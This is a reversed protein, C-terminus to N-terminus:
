GFALRRLAQPTIFHRQSKYASHFLSAIDPPRNKFTSRAALERLREPILEGLPVPNVHGLNIGPIAGEYHPHHIATGPVTPTAEGAVYVAAVPSGTPLGARGHINMRAIVDDRRPLPIVAARGHGYPLNPLLSTVVAKRTEFSNRRMLDLFAPISGVRGLGHDLLISNVWNLAAAHSFGGGKATRRIGALLEQAAVAPGHSSLVLDDSGRLPLLLPMTGTKFHEKLSNRLAGAPSGMEAAWGVHGWREPDLGYSPGGHMEYDHAGDPVPIKGAQHDAWEKDTMGAGTEPNVYRGRKALDAISAIIPVGPLGQKKAAHIFQEADEMGFLNRDPGRKLHSYPGGQYDGAPLASVDAHMPLPLGKEPPPSGFPSKPAAKPTAPARAAFEKKPPAGSVASLVDAVGGAKTMAALATTPAVTNAAVHVVHGSFKGKARRKDFAVVHFPIAHRESWRRKAALARPNMQVYHRSTTFLSKVEFAHAPAGLIKKLVALEADTTNPDALREVAAARVFLAQKVHAKDTIPNGLPDHLHIVDYPESDPGHHGGIASALEKESNISAIVRRRRAVDRYPAAARTAKNAGRAARTASWDVIEPGATKRTAPAPSPGSRDLTRDRLNLPAAFTQTDAASGTPIHAAKQKVPANHDIQDASVPALHKDISDLLPRAVDEPLGRLIRRADHPHFVGDFGHYASTRGFPNWHLRVRPRFVMGGTVAASAPNHDPEYVFAPAAQYYNGETDTAEGPTHDPLYVMNTQPVAAGGPARAAAILEHRPDDADQLRDHLAAVTHATAGVVEDRGPLVAGGGKARADNYDDRLADHAARMQKLFPAIEAMPLSRNPRPSGWSKLTDEPHPMTDAVTPEAFERAAGSRLKELLEDCAGCEAGLNARLADSVAEAHEDSLADLGDLKATLDDSVANGTQQKPAGSPQQKEAKEPAVGNGNQKEAFGASMAYYDEPLTETPRWDIDGAPPLQLKGKRDLYDVALSLTDKSTDINSWPHPFHPGVVDVATAGIVERGIPFKYGGAVLREAVDEMLGHVVPHVPGLTPHEVPPNHPIDREHADRRHNANLNDVVEARLVAGHQRMIDHAPSPAAGGPQAFTSAEVRDGRPVWRWVKYEHGNRKELAQRRIMGARDAFQKPSCNFYRHLHGPYHGHEDAGFYQAYCAADEASFDTSEPVDEADDDHADSFTRARPPAAPGKLLPSVLNIASLLEQAGSMKAQRLLPMMVARLESETM